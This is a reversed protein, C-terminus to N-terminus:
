AASRAAGSQVRYRGRLGNWRIRPLDRLFRLADRGGDVTSGPADIWEVPVEIVQLGAKRAIFLVELDFSFGDIRQVAFLQHAAEATFLKFGCQTDRYPLRFAVRVIQRLGGSLMRRFLSKNEETAGEAGRSGIAVDADAAMLEALLRDFQEIPTAQDADAFLIHRGRAAAVGRRVAGGKGTNAEAELLRLNVLDLGSVLRRTSDTSGDDSVILEWAQGRESMHSAVAGITPVIRWEENYTPIVVSVAPEDALPTTAWHRYKDM